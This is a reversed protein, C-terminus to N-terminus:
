TSGRATRFARAARDAGAPNCTNRIGAKAPNDDVFGIPEYPCEVAKMDRVIREGADGAGIVLVRKSRESRSLEHFLRRGLRAGGMAVILLVADIILISRPYSLDAVRWM